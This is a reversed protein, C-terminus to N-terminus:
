VCSVASGSVQTVKETVNHTRDMLKCPAIIDNDGPPRGVLPESADLCTHVLQQAQSFTRFRFPDSDSTTNPMSSQRTM